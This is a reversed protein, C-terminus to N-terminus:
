GGGPCFKNFQPHVSRRVPTNIKTAVQECLNATMPSAARCAFHPSSNQRFNVSAMGTMKAFGFERGANNVAHLLGAFQERFMKRLM